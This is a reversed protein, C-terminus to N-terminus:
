GAQNTTPHATTGMESSKAMRQVLLHELLSRLRAPQVPKHLLPVGAEKAVRIREPATDGTILAAPIEHGLQERLQRIVEVGTRNGPLRYDCLVADLHKASKMIALAEEANGAMVVQYGWQNLLGALSELVLTDDDVVLINANSTPLEPLVTESATLPAGTGTARPVEVAFVSGKGLVSRVSIRGGLLRALRAAIALGLGLGKSRDREPNGVQYFEQFVTQQHEPAIGVGTDWVEIRVHDGRRRCGVLIGGRETYRLANAVLNILIRELLVPDSHVTLAHHRVRFLLERNIAEPAFATEIRDLLSQICFDSLNATVVGADLRSVDLLADLLGQLATVAAQIRGTLHRNEPDKIRSNLQTVFLGLAHMPQRLDHSAAALFRSKARNAAVLEETRKAVKQELGTYAERLRAAMHNFESALADLEDGTHMDIRQELQGAGFRAAGEQLARIPRVMRGALIASAGLALVLGLLMLVGTRAMSTYLPAFAEQADQEVFVTWGLPAITSSATMVDIGSINHADDPEDTVTTEGAAATLARQIQPLQSLDTKKLVLSIDPHSILQGQTDVVYAHGTRGFRVNAVVDWVFKLNVEVLTVGEGAAIALTMYPETGDRFYVSGRYISKKQAERFEPTLSFDRGSRLRDMALRSVLLQERGRADLWIADTVAPSQRLLKIFEVQRQALPNVGRPVLNTWGIDQEIDRIFQEIRIAASSVKERHLAITTERTKHYSSYLDSVGGALLVVGVLVAFYVVYKRYLRGGFSQLLPKM